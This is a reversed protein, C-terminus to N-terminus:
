LFPFGKAWSLNYWAIWLSGCENATKEASPVLRENMKITMMLMLLLLSCPRRDYYFVYFVFFYPLQPFFFMVSCFATVLDKYFHMRSVPHSIVDQVKRDTNYTAQRHICLIWTKHKIGEWCYYFFFFPCLSEDQNGKVQVMKRNNIHLKNLSKMTRQQGKLSQSWYIFYSCLVSCVLLPYVLILCPM